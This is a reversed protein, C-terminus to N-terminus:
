NEEADMRIKYLKKLWEPCSCIQEEINLLTRKGIRRDFIAFMKILPNDAKISIKIDQNRYMTLADCFEEDTYETRELLPYRDLLKWYEDWYETIGFPKSNTKYGCIIFYTNVTECSFSKIPENDVFLRFIRCGDMGVYTTSEYRVRGKLSDAIMEKELYKRMGSWSGLIKGMEDSGKSM